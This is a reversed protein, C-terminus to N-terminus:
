LNKKQDLTTSLNYKNIISILTNAYNIATAYGANQLERAQQEPTDAILAKRYRPNVILFKTHDHISDEIRDYYRFLTQPEAGKEIAVSRNDYTKGTGQFVKSVGSLVERTTASIVKGKYGSNAKIGFANNSSKIFSKGWGTEIAMQAMKVSAFIGTGKVSNIVANSFTNIFEQPTM